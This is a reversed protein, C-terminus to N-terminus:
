RLLQLVGQPQQNAQALMAQAVQSLISNKTQEMMEKAMDVDRIRSEAATLNESSTGLNNITHELRNQFAGLSSRQASVSKIANDFVTIANAAAEFTTVDLASEVNTSNTGDTVNKDASFGTGTGVIGLASARMDNIAVSM